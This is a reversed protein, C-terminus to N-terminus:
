KFIEQGKHYENWYNMFVKESEKAVKDIDNEKIYDWGLWKFGAGSPLKNDVKGNVVPTNAQVCKEGFEEGTIYNLIPEVKDKENKNVLVYMPLTMAGDEPWVIKVNKKSCTKAFFWSVLYIAGGDESKSGAVKSMQAGHLSSKVNHALKKLGEEGYEKNVYLFTANSFEKKKKGFIVINDKYIPNLLDDLTKPIPLNGLRDTDILLVDAMVAYVIHEGNPDYIKADEIEKNVSEYKYTTFYDKGIMKDIFDESLYENFEKSFLMNPFAEIDRSLFVEDCVGNKGKGEEIYCKLMEGSEKYKGKIIEELKDKFTFKLPCITNGYFDLKELPSFDNLIYKRENEEKLIKEELYYIFLEPNIERLKLITKLMTNEGVSDILSEISDFKFGNALFVDFSEPYKILIDKVLSKDTIKM